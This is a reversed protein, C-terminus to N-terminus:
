PLRFDEYMEGIKYGNDTRRLLFVVEDGFLRTGKPSPTVIRVRAVLEDERPSLPLNRETRLELAEDSRYIELSAERYIARGKLVGYDLERIRRGWVAQLSERRSRRGSWLRSRGEFLESLENLSEDTVARFFADIIGRAGRLDPPPSLVVLTKSSPSRSEPPPLDASLDLAIGPPRREVSEPETATPFDAPRTGCALVFLALSAPIVAAGLSETISTAV